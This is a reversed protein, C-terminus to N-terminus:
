ASWGLDKACRDIASELLESDVDWWERLAELATVLQRSGADRAAEVELRGVVDSELAKRLPALVRADRRQVLGSLAEARTNDDSDQVRALLAQRIVPTDMDIQSGLGFTAWDRVEPDEDRSLRLVADVAVESQVLCLAWAVSWRVQQDPSGALAAVRDVVDDAGLHGLAIVADAVVGQDPDSLLQLLLPLSAARFPRPDQQHGLQGLVDAGLGRLAPDSHVCWSACQDFVTQEPRGHLATVSHWYTEDDVEGARVQHAALQLLQETTSM